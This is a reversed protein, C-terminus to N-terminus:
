ATLPSGYLGFMGRGVGGDVYALTSYDPLIYSAPPFLSMASPKVERYPKV